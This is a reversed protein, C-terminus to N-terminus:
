LGIRPRGQCLDVLLMFFFLLLVVLSHNVSFDENLGRTKVVLPPIAGSHLLTLLISASFIASFRLSGIDYCVYPCLESKGKQPAHESCYPSKLAFSTIDV